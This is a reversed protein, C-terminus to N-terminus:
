EMGASCSSSLVTVTISISKLSEREMDLSRLHDSQKKGPQNPGAWVQKTVTKHVFSFQKRNEFNNEGRLFLFLFVPFFM